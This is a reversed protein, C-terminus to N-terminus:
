FYLEFEDHNLTDAMFSREYSCRSFERVLIYPMDNVPDKSVYTIHWRPVILYTQDDAKKLHHSERRYIFCPYKMNVNNTPAFYVNNSGLIDVLKAHLVKRRDHLIDNNPM